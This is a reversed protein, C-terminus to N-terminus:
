ITPVAAAPLGEGGYHPTANLFPSGNTKAFGVNTPSSFLSHKILEQIGKGQLRMKFGHPTFAGICVIEVLPAQATVIPILAPTPGTTPFVEVLVSLGLPPHTLTLSAKPSDWMPKPSDWM